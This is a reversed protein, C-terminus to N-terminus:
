TRRGLIVSAFSQDRDPLDRRLDRVLKPVDQLHNRRVRVERPLVWGRAPGHEELNLTVRADSVGNDIVEHREGTAFGSAGLLCADGLDHECSPGLESRVAGDPLVREIGDPKSGTDVRPEGCAQEVSEILVRYTRAVRTDRGDRRPRMHIAVPRDDLDLVVAGAYRGRDRSPDELREHRTAM